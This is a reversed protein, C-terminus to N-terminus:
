FQDTLFMQPAQSIGFGMLFMTTEAESVPIQLENMVGRLGSWKSPENSRIRTGSPIGVAERIMAGEHCVYGGGVAQCLRLHWRWYKWRREDRRLRNPDQSAWEEYINVVETQSLLKHDPELPSFDIQGQVVEDLIEFGCSRYLRDDKAFLLAVGEGAERSHELVHGLLKSAVKLGRSDPVTAVGAIGIASGWGFALPVTTLVSVMRGSDFAAWKRNLDFFPESYFVGQVREYTLEFVECLIRLFEESENEFIPRIEIM